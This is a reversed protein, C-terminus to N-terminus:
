YLREITARVNSGFWENHVEKIIKIKIFEEIQSDDFTAIVICDILLSKNVSQCQISFSDTSLLLCDIEIEWTNIIIKIIKIFFEGNIYYIKYQNMNNESWSIQNFSEFLNLFDDVHPCNRIEVILVRSIILEWKCVKLYDIKTTFRRKETLNCHLFYKLIIYENKLMQFFSIMIFHKARSTTCKM